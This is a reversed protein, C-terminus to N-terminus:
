HHHEGFSEKLAESKLTFAGESVVQDGPQLGAHIPVLTGGQAGAEVDRREFTEPGTQVFVFSKDKDQQLASAPVALSQQAGTAIKASAFMKPKLMDGANQVVIRAHATRTKPDLEPSILSVRGQFTKGPYATVTVTASQGVKVKALDREYLNANAWLQSTNLLVFAPSDGKPEVTEGVTLHRATVVGSIPALIPTTPDLQREKALKQIRATSYGFLKLQNEAKEKEIRALRLANEAEQVEKEATLENRYLNKKRTHVSQALEYRAQAELFASQAEGLEVSEIVALAEGVKVRDGISKSIRVARGPVRASVHAVQDANAELEGTTTLMFPVTRVEAVTTRLGIRKQADAPLKVVGEAHEDHGHSDGHEHEKGHGAEEGHGHEHADKDAHSDGEAHAEGHTDAHAETHEAPKAAEPTARNCATLAVVAAVVISTLTLSPKM